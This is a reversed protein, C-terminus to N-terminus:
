EYYSAWILAYNALDRRTDQVSENNPTKGAATLEALRALKIALQTVFVRDVSDAFPESVTAAYQFNSYPNDARAYDHSKLDHLAALAEILAHYKPNGSRVYEGRSEPTRYAMDEPDVLVTAAKSSSGFSGIV